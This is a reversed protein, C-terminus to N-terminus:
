RPEGAEEPVERRMVADMVGNIFRPSEHTGYKEALMVMERITIRPAVDDVFLMEAVGLRLINRDIVSLRGMRWNTLSDEVIRDIRRLNGSVLRVLVEAYPRTQASVNLTSFLDVLIRMMEEPIAGRAEWAYLGQLAWGRARSRNRV